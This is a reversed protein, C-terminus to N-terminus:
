PVLLGGKPPMAIASTQRLYEDHMDKGPTVPAVALMTTNIAIEAELDAGAMFPLLTVAAGQPGMQIMIRLTHTLTLTALDSTRVRGIIEEGSPLRVLAVDGVGLPKKNSILM